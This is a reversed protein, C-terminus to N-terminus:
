EIKGCIREEMYPSLENLLEDMKKSLLIIEENDLVGNNKGVVENLKDRCVEFEKRIESEARM